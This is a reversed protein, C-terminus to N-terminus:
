YSKPALVRSFVRPDIQGVPKIFGRTVRPNRVRTELLLRNLPIEKAVSLNEETKLSCGNIGIYFNTKNLITNLDTLSDTFSHVVGRYRYTSDNPLCEMFEATCNRSHLFLPLDFEKALDFQMKFGAMQTELECFHLRDKDVGCEGIAGVLNKNESILKKLKQLYIDPTEAQNKDNFENCRTPHVGVTCYFKIDHLSESNASSSTQTKIFNINEVAESLMGSTILMGKLGVQAARKLIDVMDDQHKQKGRYIGRFVPDGFNAGIDIFRKSSSM